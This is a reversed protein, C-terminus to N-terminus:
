QLDKGPNYYGCGRDDHSRPISPTPGQLNSDRRTTQHSKDQETIVLTHEATNNPIVVPPFLEAVGIVRFLTDNNTTIVQATKKSTQILPGVIHERELCQSQCSCDIEEDTLREAAAPRDPKGHTHDNDACDQLGRSERHWMQDNSSQHSTRAGTQLRTSDRHVLSTLLVSCGASM